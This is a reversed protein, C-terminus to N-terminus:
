RIWKRRFPLLNRSLILLISDFHFWETEQQHHRGEYNLQLVFYKTIGDWGNIIENSDSQIRWEITTKKAKKESTIHLKQSDRWSFIPHFRCCASSSALPFAFSRGLRLLTSNFKLEHRVLFFFSSSACFIVMFLFIKRVWIGRCIYLMQYEKRERRRKKKQRLTIKERSM